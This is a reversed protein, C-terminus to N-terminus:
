ASARPGCRVKVTYTGGAAVAAQLSAYDTVLGQAAATSLAAAALLVRLLRM